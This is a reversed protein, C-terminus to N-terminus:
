AKAKAQLTTVKSARETAEAEQRKRIQAFKRRLYGPKASEAATAYTFPKPIQKM